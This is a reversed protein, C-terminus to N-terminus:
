VLADKCSHTLDFLAGCGCELVRSIPLFLDFRRCPTDGLLDLCRFTFRYLLYGVLVSCALTDRPFKTLELVQTGSLSRLQSLWYADHIHHLNPPLSRRQSRRSREQISTPICQFHPSPKAFLRPFLGCNKDLSLLFPSSTPSALFLTPFSITM